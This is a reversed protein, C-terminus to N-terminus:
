QAALLAGGFLQLPRRLRAAAHRGVSGRLNVM